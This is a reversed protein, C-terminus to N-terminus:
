RTKPDSGPEQPDPYDAFVEHLVRLSSEVDEADADEIATAHLALAKWLAWGRGRAWTADDVGLRARFHHRAAPTLLTWAVALDCAPDGIGCTGFDIVATLRGDQLLLNGVAVDGHFWRDVGDWRAHLADDWIEQALGVDLQQSVSALARRTQADYTRLPGGRFWNHVGPRPGHTADVEQLAVLFNALDDAFRVPDTIRDPEATEGDIWPYISWPFPYDESPRGLALPLPIPLPLKPALRPLWRHEKEVAEAYEAASPLRVLKDAGLHFTWNDWGGNAVPMIPLDGWLPFQDGVLHRVQTTTVTLRTPVPGLDFPDDDAM